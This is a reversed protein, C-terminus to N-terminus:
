SKDPCLPEKESKPTISEARALLLAVSSKKLRCGYRWEPMIAVLHTVFDSLEAYGHKKLDKALGRLGSSHGEETTRIAYRKEQDLTDKWGCQVRRETESILASFIDRATISVLVPAVSASESTNEM